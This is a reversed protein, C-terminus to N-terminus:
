EDDDGYDDDDNEGLSESYERSLQLLQDYGHGGLLGRLADAISATQNFKREVSRSDPDLDFMAAWQLFNRESEELLRADAALNALLSSELVPSNEWNMTTTCVSLSRKTRNSRVITHNHQRIEDTAEGFPNLHYVEKASIVIGHEVLFAEFEAEFNRLSENDSPGARDPKFM